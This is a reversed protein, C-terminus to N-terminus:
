ARGMPTWDPGLQRRNRFDRRFVETALLAADNPGIGHLQALLAAKAAVTDVDAAAVSTVLADREADVVTIQECVLMMRGRRRVRPIREIEARAHPPLPQGSGTRVVSLQALFDRKHPKLDFIGHMPLLGRIRNGLRGRESVLSGRERQIRRRDEDAVSPVCVPALADSDGAVWTKLARIMRTADMRDTKVAKARRNDQLSAPDIVVVAIDPAQDALTRALWVGEDSIEYCLIM